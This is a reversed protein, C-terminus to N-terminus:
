SASSSTAARVTAERGSLMQREFDTVVQNVSTEAEDILLEPVSDRALERQLGLHLLELDAACELM